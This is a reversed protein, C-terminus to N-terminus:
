VHLSIVKMIFSEKKELKEMKKKAKSPDIQAKKPDKPSNEPTPPQPPTWEYLSIVKIRFYKKNDIERKKKWPTM